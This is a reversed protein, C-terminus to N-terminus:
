LLPGSKSRNKKDDKVPIEDITHKFAYGKNITFITLGLVILFIFIGIIIVTIM